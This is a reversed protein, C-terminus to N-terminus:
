LVYFLYLITFELSKIFFNSLLLIVKFQSLVALFHVPVTPSTVLVKDKCVHNSDRDFTSNVTDEVNFSVSTGVRESKLM